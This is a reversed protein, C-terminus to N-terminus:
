WAYGGEDDNDDNGNWDEDGSPERDLFDEAGFIEERPRFNDIRFLVKHCRGQVFQVQDKDTARDGTVSEDDSSEDYSGAAKSRSRLRKSGWQEDQKKPRLALLPADSDSDSEGIVANKMAESADEILSDKKDPEAHPTAEGGKATWERYARFSALHSSPPVWERAFVKRFQETWKQRFEARQRWDTDVMAIITIEQLWPLENAAEILSSFFNTAATSNWRRLYEMDLVRLTTPWTPVENEGLLTDYLPENDSSMSLSSYYTMDMRLAELKPCSRKLDVLFSLDLAQNHNLVLEELHAGHTLLFAQLAESLLEGCNTISLSALNTPLVPLLRGSVIGCTEFSLVRLNPLSALASAILEETTPQGPVDIREDRDERMESPHFKTLTLERLSQFAADGHISKLWLPGQDCFTSNWRWSRLHLNSQRLADFLEPPYTWRRVRRLRPRFPPRDIPDFIDIERLTTLSRILAALDSVSNVHDTLATMQTADLELRKVMVRHDDHAQLPPSILHHVLDKRSQRMAFVPPNRYLATLAPKTFASCTRAMQVLWSISVMPKMNEDRLPHSAYVFVQLLVHYPLSAWAPKHGDTPISVATTAASPPVNSKLPAGLVLKRPSRGKGNKSRLPRPLPATKFQQTRPQPDEESLEFSAELAEEEEDTSVDKYSITPRERKRSTQAATSRRQSPAPSPRPNSPERHRMSRRSSAARRRQVRTEQESSGSIDEDSSPEKYSVAGRKRKLTVAM